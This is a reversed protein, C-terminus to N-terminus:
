LAECLYDISARHCAEYADYAERLRAWQAPKEGGNAHYILMTSVVSLLTGTARAEDLRLDQLKHVDM